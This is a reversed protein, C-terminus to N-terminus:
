ALTRRSRLPRERLAFTPFVRRSREPHCFLRSRLALTARGRRRSEGSVMAVAAANKKAKDDQAFCGSKKKVRGNFFPARRAAYDFSGPKIEIWRGEILDDKSWRKQSQRETMGVRTRATSAARLFLTARCKRAHMKKCAPGRLPPVRASIEQGRSERDDQASCRTKEETRAEGVGAACDFSGPKTEAKVCSTPIM